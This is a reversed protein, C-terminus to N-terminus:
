FQDDVCGNIESDIFAELEENRIYCLKTKILFGSKTYVDVWHLWVQEIIYPIFDLDSRIKYKKYGYLEKQRSKFDDIKKKLRDPIKNAIKSKFKNM